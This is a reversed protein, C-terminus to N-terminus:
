IILWRLRSAGANWLIIGGVEINFLQERFNTSPFLAYLKCFLSIILMTRLWIARSLRMFRTIGLLIIPLGLLIDTVEHLRHKLDLVSGSLDFALISARRLM